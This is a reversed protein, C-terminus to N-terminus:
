RRAVTSSSRVPGTAPCSLRSVAPPSTMTSTRPSPAPFCWPRRPTGLHVGFVSFEPTTTSFSIEEYYDIVISYVNPELLAQMRSQDPDGFAQGPETVTFVAAKLDPDPTGPSSRRGHFTATRAHRPDPPRRWEPLELVPGRLGHIFADLSWAEIRSSGRRLALMRDTSAAGPALVAGRNGLYQEFEVNLEHDLVAMRDGRASVAILHSGVKHLAAVTWGLNARRREECPMDDPVGPDPRGGAPRGPDGDGATESPHEHCGCRRLSERLRRCTEAADEGRGGLGPARRVLLVEGGKRAAAVWRDDIAAAATVRASPEFPTMRVISGDDDVPFGVLHAGHRADVAVLWDGREPDLPAISTLRDLPLPARRTVTGTVPNLEVLVPGSRGYEEVVVLIHRRTAILHSVRGGLDEMLSRARPNEPRSQYSVAGPLGIEWLSDGELAVVVVTSGDRPWAQLHRVPAAMRLETIPLVEGGGDPLDEYRYLLVRDGKAAAIQRDGDLLVIHDPPAPEASKGRAPGTPLGLTCSRHGPYDKPAPSDEPVSYNENESDQTVADGWIPSQAGLGPSQMPWTSIM